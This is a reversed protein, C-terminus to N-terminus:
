AIRDALVRYREVQDLYGAPRGGAAHHRDVEALRRMAARLLLQRDSGEVSLLGDPAGEWLWVDVRLLAEAYAAPRWYPTLDIVGLPLGPAHLTNGAFDGHILQEPLALPECACEFARYVSAVREHPEWTAGEWVIRDAQAWPDTRGDLFAPRPLAALAAHLFRCTAIREEFREGVVTEGVLADWAVWGEVVWGGTDAEVPRALRFGEQVVELSAEAAWAAEVPDDVSKLITDAARFARGQGDAIAVSM